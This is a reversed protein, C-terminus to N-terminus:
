GRAARVKAEVVQPEDEVPLSVPSFRFWQQIYADDVKRRAQIWRRKEMVRRLNRVTLLFA